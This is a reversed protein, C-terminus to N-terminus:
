NNKKNLFNDPLLEWLYIVLFGVLCGVLAVLIPESFLNFIKWVRFGEFFRFIAIVIGLGLGGMLGSLFGMQPIEGYARAIKFGIYGFILLRIIWAILDIRGLTWDEFFYDVTLRLIIELAIGLLVPWKIFSLYFVFNIPEWKKLQTDVM